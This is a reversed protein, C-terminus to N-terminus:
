VNGNSVGFMTNLICIRRGNGACFLYIESRTHFAISIYYFEFQIKLIDKICAYKSSIIITCGDCSLSLALFLACSFFSVVQNRLNCILPSFYLYGFLTWYVATHVSFCRMTNIKEHLYINKTTWEDDSQNNNNNLKQIHLPNSGVILQFCVRCARRMCSLELSM